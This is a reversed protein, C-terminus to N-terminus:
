IDVAHRVARADCLLVQPLIGLMHAGHHEVADDWRREREPGGDRALRLARQAASAAHPARNAASGCSKVSTSARRSAPTASSVSGGGSEASSSRASTRKM